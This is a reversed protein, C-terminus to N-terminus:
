PMATPPVVRVVSNRSGRAWVACHKGLTMGAEEKQPRSNSDRDAPLRDDRPEEDSGESRRAFETGLIQLQVRVSRSWRTEWKAM